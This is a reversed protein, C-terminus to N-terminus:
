AFRGASYPQLDLHPKERCIMEYVLKGTAAGMSVGIMNHGAAITVNSFAPARDIIPRGDFTMPRWGYWSEEIPECYPDVLYEEAGRKLASLRVPNLSTDYGAFEMTSGLRYGSHMPTVAVKCQPFILPLQPCTAPRPMTISYGKGPQIPVKMGLWRNLLPTWAGTAVVFEDAEIPGQSSLVAKATKSEQQFGKVETNEHIEVNMRILVDRLSTLLKDPRLHADCEHHWAGALGPKLSPEYERASEGDFRKAGVGFEEMWHNIKGYDDMAKEDRFVFFSGRHEWECALKEEAILQLYLQFSSQLLADRAQATAMMKDHRCERAFRYFWWWLSPRLSPKIRFPADRRLVMPLTKRVSGPISLPLVHSPCVYGCNGHSSGRGFQGRDVMTVRCGNKRLFYASVAGIVGCGIILVRPPM